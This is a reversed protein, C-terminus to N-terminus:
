ANGGVSAPEGIPSGTKVAAVKKPRDVVYLHGDNILDRNHQVSVDINDAIEGVGLTKGTSIDIPHTGCNVVTAM